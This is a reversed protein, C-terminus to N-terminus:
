QCIDQNSDKQVSTSGFRFEKITTLNSHWGRNMTVVKNFGLQSSNLVQFSSLYSM